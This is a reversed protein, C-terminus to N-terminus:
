CAAHTTRVKQLCSAVLFGFATTALCVMLLLLFSLGFANRTFQLLLHLLLANYSSVSAQCGRKRRLVGAFCDVAGSNRIYNYM